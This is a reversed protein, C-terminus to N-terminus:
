ANRARRVSPAGKASGSRVAATGHRPCELFPCPTVDAQTCKFCLGANKRRSFEALNKKKSDPDDNTGFYQPPGHFGRGDIAKLRDHLVRCEAAAEPAPLTTAPIPPPPSPAGPTASSDLHVSPPSPSAGDALLVRAPRDRSQTPTPAPIRNLAAETLEVRLAFLAERDLSPQVLLSARPPGLGACDGGASEELQRLARESCQANATLEAYLRARESPTFLDLLKYFRSENAGLNVPVRHQRACEERQNFVRLRDPGGQLAPNITVHWTDRYARAGAFETGFATRLGYAVQDVTAPAEHGAFHMNFWTLAEGSLKAILQRPLEDAPVGHQCAQTRFSALFVDPSGTGSYPTLGPMYDKFPKALSPAPNPPAPHAPSVSPASPPLLHAVLAQLSVAQQLLVEQLSASQQLIADLRADQPLPQLGQAPARQHGAPCPATTPFHHPLPESVSAPSASRSSHDSYAYGGRPTRTGAPYFGWAPTARDGAAGHAVRTTGTVGPELAALPLAVAAREYAERAAAVAAEEEEEAAAAAAATAAAMEAAAAASAAAEARAARAATVRATAADALPPGRLASASPRSAPAPPFISHPRPSERAPLASMAHFADATAPFPSTRSPTSRPHDSIGPAHDPLSSTFPSSHRITVNAFTAADIWENIKHEPLALWEAITSASFRRALASDLFRHHAAIKAPSAGAIAQKKAELIYEVLQQRPIDAIRDASTEAQFHPSTTNSRPYIAAM